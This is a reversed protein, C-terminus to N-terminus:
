RRAQRNEHWDPDVIRKSAANHQEAARIGARFASELRDKLYQRANEGPPLSFPNSARKGEESELWHKWAVVIQPGEM